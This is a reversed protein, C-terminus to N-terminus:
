LRVRRGVCIAVDDLWDNNPSSSFVSLIETKTWSKPKIFKFYDASRGTAAARNSGGVSALIIFNGKPNKSETQEFNPSRKARGAIPASSNGTKWQVALFYNARKGGNLFPFKSKKM